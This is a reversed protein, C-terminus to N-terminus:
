QNGRLRQGCPRERPRLDEQPVVPSGWFEPAREARIGIGGRLAVRLRPEIRALREVEQGTGVLAVAHRVARDNVVATRNRQTSVPQLTQRERVKQERAAIWLGHAFRAAHDGVFQALREALRRERQRMEVRAVSPRKRATALRVARKARRGIPRQRQRALRLPGLSECAEREVSVAGVQRPPERQWRGDTRTAGIDGRHIEQATRRGGAARGHVCGAHDCSLDGPAVRVVRSRPLRNSRAPEDYSRHIPERERHCEDGSPGCWPWADRQQDCLGAIRERCEIAKDNLEDPCAHRHRNEIRAAHAAGNCGGRGAGVGCDAMLTRPEIERCAISAFCEVRQNSQPQDIGRAGHDARCARDHKRRGPGCLEVRAEGGDQEDRGGRCGHITAGQSGREGARLRPQEHLDRRLIDFGHQKGVAEGLGQGDL